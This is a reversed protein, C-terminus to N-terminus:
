GIYCPIYLKCYFLSYCFVSLYQFLCYPTTLIFTFKHRILSRFRNVKFKEALHTSCCWEYTSNYVGIVVTKLYLQCEKMIKNLTQRYVKMDCNGHIEHSCLMQSWLSWYRKLAMEKMKINCNHGYVEIDNLHWKKWKLIATTVMFSFVTYTANRENYYQLQSWLSWYRILAM